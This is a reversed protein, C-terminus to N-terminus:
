RPIGSAGPRPTSFRLLSALRYLLATFPKRAPVDITVTILWALVLALVSIILLAAPVGVKPFLLRYAMVGMMAHTLYLPYTMAGLPYALRAIPSSPRWATLVAFLAFFALVLSPVVIASIQDPDIFQSRQSLSIYACITACCGLAAVRALTAGKSLTLYFLAGSIFFPGYSRLALYNVAWPADAFLITISVALWGYLWMEVNRMQRLLLLLMILAYFRIEIELTWYVGELLPANLVAPMMTANAAITRVSLKTPVGSPALDAFFYLLLCTFAVSAWFSPYLRSIRSIAFGLPDRHLSSWLIVFGSIMFFLDVGLYGYRTFESLAGVVTGTTSQSVPYCTIYHYLTVAAAAIFRLLDLTPLRAPLTRTM